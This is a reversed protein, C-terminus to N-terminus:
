VPLLSQLLHSGYFQKKFSNELSPLCLDEHSGLLWGVCTVQEAQLPCKYLYAKYNAFMLRIYEIFEDYAMSFGLLILVYFPSFDIHIHLGQIHKTLQRITAELSSPNTLLNSKPALPETFPWLAMTNDIKYLAELIDVLNNCYADVCQQAMPNAIVPSKPTVQMNFYFQTPCSAQSHNNCTPTPQTAMSQKPTSLASQHRSTLEGLSQDQTHASSPSSLDVMNSSSPDSSVSPSTLSEVECGEMPTAMTTMMPLAEDKKPQSEQSCVGFIGQGQSPPQNLKALFSTSCAVM